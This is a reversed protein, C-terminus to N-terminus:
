QRLFEGIGLGLAEQQGCTRCSLLAHGSYLSLGGGRANMADDGGSMATVSGHFMVAQLGPQLFVRLLAIM